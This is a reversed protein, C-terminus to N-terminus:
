AHDLSRNVMEPLKSIMFAVASSNTGQMKMSKVLGHFGVSTRMMDFLPKSGMGREGHISRHLLLYSNYCRNWRLYLLNGDVRFDQGPTLLGQEVLTAFVSWWVHEPDPVPQPDKLSGNTLIANHASLCKEVQDTTLGCAQAVRSLHTNDMTHQIPESHHM